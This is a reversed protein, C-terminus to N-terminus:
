LAGRTTSARLFATVIERFGTHGTRAAHGLAWLDPGGQEDSPDSRNLCTTCEIERVPTSAGPTRDPGITWRAARVVTRSM